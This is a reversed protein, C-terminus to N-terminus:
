ANNIAECLTLFDETQAPPLKGKVDTGRGFVIGVFQPEVQFRARVQDGLVKTTVLYVRLGALMNQASKALNWARDTASGIYVYSKFNPNALADLLNQVTLPPLEEAM